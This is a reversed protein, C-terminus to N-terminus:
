QVIGDVNSAIRFAVENVCGTTPVVAVYNRVGVLGNKRLYGHLNM